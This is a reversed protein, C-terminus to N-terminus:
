SGDQKYFIYSVDYTCYRTRVDNVKSPIDDPLKPATFKINDAGTRECTYKGADIADMGLTSGIECSYHLVKTYWDDNSHKFYYYIKWTGGALEAPFYFDVKATMYHNDSGWKTLWFSQESTGIQQDGMQSNTFWAKANAECIYARVEATQSEDDGQNIYKLYMLDITRNGNTAYVHGGQSYTNKNDLDALFVELCLHDGSTYAKYKSENLVWDSAHVRLATMALLISLLLYIRTKM